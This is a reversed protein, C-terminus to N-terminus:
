SPWALRRGRPGPPGPGPLARHLRLPRGPQGGPAAGEDERGRPLVGPPRGGGRRRHLPLAHGLGPLDAAVGRRRGDRRAGVRQPRRLPPVRGLRAGARLVARDPRALRPLRRRVRRLRGPLRPPLVVAQRRAPRLLRAHRHRAPARHRPGPARRRAPGVVARGSSLRRDVVPRTLLYLAVVILSIGVALLSISAYRDITTPFAVWQVGVLREASGSCCTPGAPCRTTTCGAPWRSASSAAWPRRDRRRRGPHAFASVLTAPETQARFLERQVVLLVLVGACVLLTVVDAAHVLHLALSAALLAVAVLWSRRQGKLIGRSLMIMGIGAIAVLAGAAQVVAIPLYQAILHLHARLPATVASLLDIVGAVFLSVAAMRRIRRVRIRDAAVEPAPPWSAGSPWGAVLEPHVDAAKTRGKIVIDSTVLREGLTAMPLDVEALMLRVHLDAGTEIELTSEQRHHLFTPPLGLRGRHEHVVESTAGPCAFFGADLHTLEPM